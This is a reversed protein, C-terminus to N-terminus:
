EEDDEPAQPTEEFVTGMVDNDVQIDGVRQHAVASFNSEHEADLVRVMEAM